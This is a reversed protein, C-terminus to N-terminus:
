KINMTQMMNQIMLILMIKSNEWDFEFESKNNEYTKLHKM